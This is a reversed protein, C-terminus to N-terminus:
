VEHKSILVLAHNCNSVFHTRALRQLLNRQEDFPDGVGRTCYM